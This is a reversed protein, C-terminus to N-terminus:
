RPSSSPSLDSDVAVCFTFDNKKSDFENLILIM